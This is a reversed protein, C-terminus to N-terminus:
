HYDDELQHRVALVLVHGADLIRYLAVYGSTGFPILLERLLPDDRHKRYLFPHRSLSEMGSRIAAIASVAVSLQDTTELGEVLHDYLRLLDDEAEPAYRVDFM